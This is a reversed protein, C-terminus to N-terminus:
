PSEKRQPPREGARQLQLEYPSPGVQDANTGHRMPLGKELLLDMAREIPIRVIGSSRDVWGYSHLQADERERFARLDMPPSVQLRPFLNTSTRLGAAKPGPSWVDGPTREKKLWGLMAALVLHIILGAVAFLGLIGFIWGVHADRREYGPPRAEPATGAGEPERDPKSKTAM